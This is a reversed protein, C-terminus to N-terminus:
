KLADLLREFYDARRERARRRELGQKTHIGVPCKQHHDLFFQASEVSYIDLLIEFRECDDM